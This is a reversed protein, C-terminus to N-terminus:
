FLKRRAAKFQPSTKINPLRKARQGPLAMPTHYTEIHQLPSISKDPKNLKDINADVINKLKPMIQFAPMVSHINTYNVPIHITDLKFLTYIYDYNHELVYINIHEGSSVVGILQLGQYGKKKAAELVDKLYKGIKILDSSSKSQQQCSKAEVTLLTYKTANHVVSYDAKKSHKTLSPDIAMFRNSSEKIEKDAAYTTMYDSNPFFSDLMPVLYDKIVTNENIGKVSYQRSYTSKLSYLITKVRTPLSSSDLATDVTTSRAATRILDLCKVIDAIALDETSDNTKYKIEVERYAQLHDQHELVNSIHDNDLLIIGSLALQEDDALKRRTAQCEKVLQNRSKLFKESLNIQNGLKWVRNSDNVIIIDNENTSILYEALEQAKKALEEESSSDTSEPGFSSDDSSIITTPSSSRSELTNSALSGKTKEHQPKAQITQNDSSRTRRLELSAQLSFHAATDYGDSHLLTETQQKKGNLAIEAWFSSEFTSGRWTEFQHILKRNNARGKQQYGFEVAFAKLSLSEANDLCWKVELDAM